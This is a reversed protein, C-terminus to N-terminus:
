GPLIEQEIFRLAPLHKNGAAVNGSYPMQVAPLYKINFVALDGRKLFFFLFYPSAIYRCRPCSVTTLVFSIMPIKSRSIVVTEFCVLFNRVFPSFSPQTTLTVYSSGFDKMRQLFLLFFFLETYILWSEVAVSKFLLFIRGSDNDVYFPM